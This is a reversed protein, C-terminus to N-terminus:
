DAGHTDCGGDECEEGESGEGAGVGGWGELLLLWWLLLLLREWIGVVEIM